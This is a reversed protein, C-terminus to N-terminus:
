IIYQELTGITGVNIYRPDFKYITNPNASPSPPRAIENQWLLFVSPVIPVIRV